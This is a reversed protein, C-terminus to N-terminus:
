RRAALREAAERDDAIAVLVDRGSCAIVAHRRAQSFRTPEGGTRRARASFAAEYWSIMSACLGRDRSGDVLTLALASREGRTWIDARGGHWAAARGVPDDLASGPHGDPARFLGILDAAGFVGSSKPERTWGPGPGRPARPRVPKWRELYRQPFLIEATSTPPRRYAADVADWGGHAYLACVFGIGERYPFVWAQAIFFPLEPGPYSYSIPDQRITAEQARGGILGRLLRLEAAVADGEILGAAASYTDGWGDSDEGDGPEFAAYVLAHALEHGLTQLETDDLRAGPERVLVVDEDDPDYYGAVYGGAAETIRRRLPFGRPIAGLLVLARRDTEAEDPPYEELLEQEFRRALADPSVFSTPV